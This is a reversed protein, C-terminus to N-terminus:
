VQAPHDAVSARRSEKPATGNANPAAKKEDTEPKAWRARAARVAAASRLNAARVLIEDDSLHPHLVRAAAVYRDDLAQRAPATAATRDPERAWREHAAIRARLSRETSVM